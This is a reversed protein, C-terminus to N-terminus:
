KAVQVLDNRELLLWADNQGKMTYHEEVYPGYLQRLALISPADEECRPVLVLTVERFVGEPRPFRRESFTTGYHWWVLDGRASQLGLAFPFPNSFDMVFVRSDAHIVPGLIDVGKNIKAGYAFLGCSSGADVVDLSALAPANIRREPPIAAHGLRTAVAAYAVSAFDGAVPTGVFVGALLLCSLLRGDRSAGAESDADVPRRMGRTAYECLVIVAASLIPIEANQFNTSVIAIGSVLAVPVIASIKRWSPAPANRGADDARSALFLVLLLLLTDRANNALNGFVRATNGSLAVRAASASRLDGFMALVHGHMYIVFALFVVGFGLAFGAMWQRRNVASIRLLLGCAIIGAAAGFYTFKLFLLIALALGTSMGGVRSRSSLTAHSPGFMEVLILCVFAYGLRNYIASYSIWQMAMGLFHSSGALGAIFITFCAALMPLMVRRGILWAWAGLALVAIVVSWALADASRGGLKIGAAILLFTVPGLPTAFDVHPVQGQVIRWAGELLLPVDHGFLRQPIAGTLAIVVGEVLLLAAVVILARRYAAPSDDLVASLFRTRSPIM